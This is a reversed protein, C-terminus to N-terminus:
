WRARGGPRGRLAAVLAVVEAETEEVGVGTNIVFDARRRKEADPTQRALIAALKEPTMGPRALVRARQIAPDGCSVVAVADVVGAEPADAGTEFLLPIDLVVLGHARGAGDAAAAAQADLWAAREATVLPHVIGELAALADPKGLVAAALAPRSIGGAPDLVAPSFAAAVPAVARGGPAYLAHVAADSDHVPVGARTFFSAVTSKGQGIGGTLGLVFM